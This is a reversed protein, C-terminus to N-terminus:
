RYATSAVFQYHRQCKGSSVLSRVASSSPDPQTLFQPKEFPGFIKKVESEWSVIVLISTRVAVIVILLLVM